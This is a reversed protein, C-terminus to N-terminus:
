RGAGGGSEVAPRAPATTAGAGSTSGKMDSLVSAPTQGADDVVMVVRRNQWGTRGPGHEGSMLRKTNEGYSVARLQDKPIGASGSLYSVVSDARRQGLRLNYAASGAPDTFGEVTITAGPYYKKAVQGFGDLAQRGEASVASSDFGFYVPVDFRLQGQMRQVTVNFQDHLSKLDAELSSVRGDLNDMRSGLDSSVKSDGDKMEQELSSRMSALSADLDKPTVHACGATLGVLGVIAGMTAIRLPKDLRGM